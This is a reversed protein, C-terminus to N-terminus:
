YGGRFMFTFLYQSAMGIIYLCPYHMFAFTLM